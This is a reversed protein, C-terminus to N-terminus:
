FPSLTTKFPLGFSTTKLPTTLSRYDKPPAMPCELLIEGEHLMYLRESALVGNCRAGADVAHLVM